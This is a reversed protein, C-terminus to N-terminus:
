SATYRLTPTIWSGNRKFGYTVTDLYAAKLLAVAEAEYSAISTDSPGGAYLRQVRKLDTAVKAALHRAHTVTFTESTTATFSSM